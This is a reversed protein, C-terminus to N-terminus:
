ETPLLGNPLMLNVNDVAEVTAVTLASKVLPKGEKRLEVSKLLGNYVGVTFVEEQGTAENSVVAEICVQGDVSVMRASQIERDLLDEYTALRAIDDYSFEGRGMTYFNDAGERWLYVSDATMVTHNAPNGNEYQVIKAIQGRVYGMAQQQTQNEGAYLTTTVAFVYEAPRSLQELILKVNTHDVTVQQIIQQNEREIGDDIEITVDSREPLVISSSQRYELSSLYFSTLVGAVVTLIALLVIPLYKNRKMLKLLISYLESPRRAMAM